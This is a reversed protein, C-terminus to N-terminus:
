RFLLSILNKFNRYSFNIKLAQYASHLANKKLKHYSLRQSHEWYVLSPDHKYKELLRQKEKELIESQGKMLCDKGHAKRQESLFVRLNKNILRDTTILKVSKTLSDSHIRYNYLPIDLNIAKFKEVVRCTFDIDEGWTFYRFLGNTESLIEKRFFLTPGHFQSTHPLKEKIADYETPMRVTRRKGGTHQYFSTGIMALSTNPELFDIAIQFRNPESFDDADHITIYKGQAIEVLRNATLVKGQNVRNHSIRIRPDTYSDIIQKTTDSSGDDAIILEFDEFTQNLISDIAQEIHKEANFAPLIVSLISKM